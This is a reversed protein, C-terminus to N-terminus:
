NYEYHSQDDDISCVVIRFYACRLSKKPGEVLTEPQRRAAWWSLDTGRKKSMFPSINVVAEEKDLIWFLFRQVGKTASDKEGESCLFRKTWDDHWREIGQRWKSQRFTSQARSALHSTVMESVRDGSDQNRRDPCTVVGSLYHCSGALGVHVAYEGCELAHFIWPATM